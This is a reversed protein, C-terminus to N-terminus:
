FQAGLAFQNTSGTSGREVNSKVNPTSEISTKSGPPLNGLEVKVRLEGDKRASADGPQPQASGDNGYIPPIPPMPPAGRDASPAAGYIPPTPVRDPAPPTPARGPSGKDAYVSAIQTAIAARKDAEAQGGAPMEYQLSVVRAADEPTAADILNEGARRHTTNLERLTYALQEDLTATTLSHGAWQQFGAQRDPHWQAVGIAKGNDGVAREDVGSEQQLNAVMGIAGTRSLGHRQYWDVAYAINKQPMAEIQANTRNGRGSVINRFREAGEYFRDAINPAPGADPSSGPKYTPDAWKDPSQARHMVGAIFEDARNLLVTLAPALGSLITTKVKDFQQDLASMADAYENARRIDEDTPALQLGRQYRSRVGAEGKNLLDELGSAGLEDFLKHRALPGNRANVSEGAKAIEEILREPSFNGQEDRGSIGYAQYIVRKQVDRGQEAEYFGRTIGEVSSTAAEATIGVQKAANQLGFLQKADVGLTLSKNSVGRVASAWANEISLIKAAALAAVAGLGALMAAGRASARTAGTVFSQVASLNSNRNTRQMQRNVANLGRNVSRFGAGTRDFATIIIALNNAM